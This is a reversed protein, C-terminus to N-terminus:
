EILQRLVESANLAGTPVEEHKFYVFVDGEGGQERLRAVIEKLQEPPYDSKRLRYCRFPATRVDPSELGDSEAACLAANRRKLVEFVEARFWSEHRFEFALRFGERAASLLFEDLLDLNAPFNPPLQFLVVGLKKAQLVPLLATYFNDLLDSCNRLRAFHTIRQPAKFSFKFGDGTAAMWGELMAATPLTRFTYNVEVSNLRTAYYELFRKAPQKPPYFGPKWSGYAWGSTGLYIAM